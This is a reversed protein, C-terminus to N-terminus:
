KKLVVLQGGVHAKHLHCNINFIGAKTAKFSVKKIQKKLVEVKVKFAPIQFGHIGSPANNILKITVDDGENVVITGPVWQKTKQFEHNVLSIVRKAAFSNTSLILLLIFVYKVFFRGKLYLKM